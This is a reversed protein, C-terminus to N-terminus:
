ESADSAPGDEPSSPSNGRRTDKLGGYAMPYAQHFLAPAFNPVRMLKRMADESYPIVRGGSKVKRWDNTIALARVTDDIGKWEELREPTPEPKADPRVNGEADYPSVFLRAFEDLDVLDVQLEITKDIPEAIADGVSEMVPFTVEIWVLRRTQLDFDDAM